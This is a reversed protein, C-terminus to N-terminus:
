RRSAPGDAVLKEVEVCGLHLQSLKAGAETLSMKGPTLKHCATCGFEEFRAAKQRQPTSRKEEPVQTIVTMATLMSICGEFGQARDKGKATFGLKGDSGMTHCSRCGHTDFVYVALERPSKNAKVMGDLTAATDQPSSPKASQAAWM